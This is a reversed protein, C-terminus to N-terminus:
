RVEESLREAARLKASRARPNVAVEDAAATVPKSTLVKLQARAGCSCRPLSRPCTCRGTFSRFSEKVIRDELSHFSIVVMRGRPMLLDVTAGLVAELSALEQNVAIRLAQFTRTAPHLREEQAKRPIAGSVIAALQGTTVIAAETRAAVILKAIRRAWREEGFRFIIDALEEASAENVLDVAGGGETPNMRMDLPADVQFSFGREPTDLQHSSVGLDLLVGQVRDIGIATLQQRMDAFNGHILTVRDGFRALREGAAALAAPDRDFGILRGDPGSQELIAAAHGAGGITGDVYIGGPRLALYAVVERSMVSVHSFSM